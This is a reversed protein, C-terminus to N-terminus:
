LGPQENKTITYSLEIAMPSTEILINCGNQWQCFYIQYPDLGRNRDIHRVDITLCDEIRTKSDFRYWNGSGQGGM